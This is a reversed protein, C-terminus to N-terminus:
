SHPFYSILGLKWLVASLATYHVAWNKCPSTQALLIDVLLGHHKASLLSWCALLWCALPEINVSRRTIHADKAVLM